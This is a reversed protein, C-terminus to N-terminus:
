KLGVTENPTDHWYTQQTMLSGSENQFEWGWESEEAPGNSVRPFTMVVRITKKTNTQCRVEHIRSSSKENRVPECITKCHNKHYNDGAVFNPCPLIKMLTHWSNQGCPPMCSPRPCAHHPPMCSPPPCAHHPPQCAHCISHSVTLSRATRMRSSHM